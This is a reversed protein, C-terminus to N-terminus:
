ECRLSVVPNIKSARRAPIFSALFGVFALLLSVGLYTMGDFPTVGYLLSAILQGLMLSGIVGFLIGLGVLKAARALVSRLVAGRTAGIAMRIGIERTRQSITYSMVGYLGICAVSLALLAFMSVISTRFRSAAVSGRVIESMTEVQDMPITADIDALARRLASTSNAPDASTRLVIVPRAEVNPVQGYPVYMESEPQVALGKHHVNGVVGVISRWDGNDFRVRQGVPNTAGWYQRAMSENIAVVLPRDEIDGAEIGRGREIPIGVTEFYGASVPRYKTSDFSGPAKPPHGEIDFSRSNDVGTLPLNSTFAAAQVGPIQLVRGILTQQLATIARHQGMGYKYGNTYKPPLSLRATLVHESQFGPSVASLKLLSRTMLGAGTLLVLAVATQGVTLFSRLTSRDTSVTRGGQKLPDAPTVTGSQRLPVLGFVIGSAVTLLSTFTLVRWDVAIESARPLDAPLHHRLIPLSFLEVILGLAGGAAALTLSETVLQRAIRARSAGLAIRVAIEKQRVTARTLQLNAINACALLLVMAVAAMLTLLALRVQGVVHQALPDARIGIDKNDAPHLQQLNLAVRNLDAQALESSIGPKLRAFVCLSHTGRQWAEPPSALALPTWVDFQSRSQYDSAESAVYFNRPLVGVVTYSEDNLQVSDGVIDARGNFLRVWASYSLIVVHRSGPHDEEPLFDRGVAMRVRLLSFFEQSVAAGTLRYAEGSGSVIFDPYPDLAAMSAFSHSQQHWDYFNAPSVTGFGGNQLSTEGLMLLSGPDPYPLPKLIVSNVLTFITSNAGISVALTLIIIFSFGPNGALTRLAYRFDQVFGELFAGSRANRVGQKVQEMGGIERRAARLADDPSMGRSVKDAVLSEVFARLEEDLEDDVAQRHYLNRWLARLYHVM